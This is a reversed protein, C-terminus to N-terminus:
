GLHKIGSKSPADKDRSDFSASHSLNKMPAGARSLRDTSRYLMTLLAQPRQSLAVADVLLGDRLPSAPLPLPAFGNALGLVPQSPLRLLALMATGFAPTDSATSHHPWERGRLSGHFRCLRPKCFTTSAGGAILSSSGALPEM